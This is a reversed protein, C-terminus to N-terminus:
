FLGSSFLRSNEPLQASRNEKAKIVEFCNTFDFKSNSQRFLDQCEHRHHSVRRLLHSAHKQVKHLFFTHNMGSASSRPTHLYFQSGKLVRAM